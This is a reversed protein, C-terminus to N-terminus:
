PSFASIYAQCLLIKAQKDLIAELLARVRVFSGPLPEGPLKRWATRELM